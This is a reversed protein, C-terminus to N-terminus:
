LNNFLYKYDKIIETISTKDKVKQMLELAKYWIPTKYTSQTYLITKKVSNIDSNTLYPYNDGILEIVNHDKSIIINANTAAATALKTAPKFNFQHTHIARVSYHCNYNKYRIPVLRSGIRQISDINKLYLCNIGNKDSGIFCLKLIHNNDNTTIDNNKIYTDIIPDYHHYIKIIIVSHQIKKTRILKRIKKSLFQKLSESEVIIYNIFNLIIPYKLIIPNYTPNDYRMGDDVIDFLIINKNKKIITLIDSNVINKIFIVIGKRIKKIASINNISVIYAKYNKDKNLEEQIQLGRMRGATSKKRYIFYIKRKM